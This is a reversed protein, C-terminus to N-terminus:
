KITILLEGAKVNDGEAIFVEDIVGAMREV